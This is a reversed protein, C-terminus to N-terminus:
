RVAALRNLEDQLKGLRELEQQVAGTGAAM